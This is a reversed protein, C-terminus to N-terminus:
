VIKGQSDENDFSELKEKAANEVTVSKEKEMLANVEEKTKAAKIAAVREEVTPKKPKAQEDSKGEASESSDESSADDSSEEVTEERVVEANAEKSLEEKTENQTKLVLADDEVRRVELEEEKIDAM